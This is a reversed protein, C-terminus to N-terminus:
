ADEEDEWGAEKLAGFVLNNFNDRQADWAADWAADRAAARAAAWAAAWAADWAAARIDSKDEGRATGEIYERVVLPPTWKDFVTLACQAAFQRMLDTCDLMFLYKRSTAAHKDTPNGHAVANDPVDVVWLLEGPAYTLADWPTPSSHLGSTCPIIEGDVRDTKGIEAPERLNTTCGDAKSFWYELM